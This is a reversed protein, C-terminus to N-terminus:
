PHVWGQDIEVKLIFLGLFIVEAAGVLITHIVARKMGPRQKQNTM